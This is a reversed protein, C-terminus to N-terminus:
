ELERLFSRGKSTLSSALFFIVGNGENKAGNMYGYSILSNAITNIENQSYRNHFTHPTLFIEGEFDHDEILKLTEVMLQYQQQKDM